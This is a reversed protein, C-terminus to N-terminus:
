TLELPEIVIMQSYRPLVTMVYNGPTVHELAFRGQEDSEVEIARTADADRMLEILAVGSQGAVAPVMVEGMVRLLGNHPEVMLEVETEQAGFLLRYSTRSANRVGMAGAQQRSDWLPLANVWETLAGWINDIVSPQSDQPQGERGAEAFLALLRTELTPSLQSQRAVAFEDQLLALAAFEKQCSDCQALHGRADTTLPTGDLLHALMYQENLHEM